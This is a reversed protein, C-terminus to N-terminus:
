SLIHRPIERTCRPCVAARAKILSLCHPCAKRDGRTVCIILVGIPGLLFGLWMGLAGQGKRRAILWAIAAFFVMWFTLSLMADLHAGAQTIEMM